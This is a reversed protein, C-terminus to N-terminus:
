GTTIFVTICVLLFIGSTVDTNMSYFLRLCSLMADAHSQLPIFYHFRGQVASLLWWVGWEQEVAVVGGGGEGVSEERREQQGGAESNSRTATETIVHCALRRQRCNGTEDDNGNKFKVLWGLDDCRKDWIRSFRIQAWAMGSQQQTKTDQVLLVQFAKPRCRRLFQVPNKEMRSRAQTKIEAGGVGWGWGGCVGWGRWGLWKSCEKHGVEEMGGEVAM